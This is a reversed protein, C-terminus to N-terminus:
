RKASTEVSLTFHRHRIKSSIFPSSLMAFRERGCGMLLLLHCSLVLVSSEGRYNPSSVQFLYLSKIGTHGGQPTTAEKLKATTWARTMVLIYANDM